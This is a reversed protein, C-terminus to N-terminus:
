VTLTRLSNYLNTINLYRQKKIMQKLEFIFIIYFLIFISFQGMLLGQVSLTLFRPLKAMDGFVALLITVLGLMIAVMGSSQIFTIWFTSPLSKIKQQLEQVESNNLIEFKIQNAQDDNISIQYRDFAAKKIRSAKLTM